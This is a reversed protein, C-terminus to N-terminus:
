DRGGAAKAKWLDWARGVVAAKTAMCPPKAAVATAGGRWARARGGPGGEGEV